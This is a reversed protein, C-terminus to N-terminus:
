RTGRGAPAGGPANAFQSIDWKATTNTMDEFIWKNAHLLPCASAFVSDSMPGFANRPPEPGSGDVDIRLQFRPSGADCTKGAQFYYKVQLMNDLDKVKITTNAGFNRTISGFESSNDISVVQNIPVQGDEPDVDERASGGLVFLSQASATSSMALLSLVVLGLCLTLRKVSM